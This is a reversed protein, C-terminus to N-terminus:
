AHACEKRYSVQCIPCNYYEWGDELGLPRFAAMPHPYGLGCCVLGALPPRPGMVGIFHGVAALFPHLQEASPAAGVLKAVVVGGEVPVVWVSAELDTDVSRSGVRQNSTLNASSRAFTLNRKIMVHTAALILIIVVSRKVAFIVVECAM